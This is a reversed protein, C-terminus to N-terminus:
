QTFNYETRNDEAYRQPKKNMLVEDDTKRSCYVIGRKGAIPTMLKSSDPTNCKATLDNVVRSSALYRDLIANKQRVHM